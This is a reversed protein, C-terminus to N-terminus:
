KLLPLISNSDDTWLITKSEHTPVLTMGTQTKLWLSFRPDRSLLAWHSSLVGKKEDTPSYVWDYHFSFATALGKTIPMLNIYTNSVHFAVIGEKDILKQYLQMSEKTVLHSPIVDGSFADIVILDYNLSANKKQEKELEIRGDGLIINVKASSSSLYSFYDYAIKKVEPDIEYYTVADDPLLMATIAGTGLGIVAVRLPRKLTHHLYSIAMGVGSHEGYYATPWKKKDPELFQIGHLVTGHLFFRRSDKPDPYAFDFIRMYGYLTRREFVLKQHMSIDDFQSSFAWAFFGIVSGVLLIVNYTEKSKKFKHYSIYVSLLSLILIPCYFDWWRTFPLFSVVNAFIGGLAGGLAIILYFLNLHLPSPKNRVLEGHCIMCGAYLLSLLSFIGEYENLKFNFTMYACLMSLIFFLVIWLSREYGKPKSFTIIYSILYLALPLVWVLPLNVVNQTLYRTSSVLLASSLFTLGLWTLIPKFSVRSTETSDKNIIRNPMLEILCLLCILGYAIYLISWLQSQFRLGMFPEIALPYGILGLLSGFNSISYFFYPFTTKQLMCYWYQLLPSSASIICFPFLSCIVLGKTVELPPWGGETAMLTTLDLPLFYFSLILLILHIIIQWKKSFFQTLCYAYFYGILLAVQFFVMSVVWIFGSGGFGPLLSKALMPQIFFLLFASLFIGLGFQIKLWVQSKIM